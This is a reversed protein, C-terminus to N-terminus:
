ATSRLITALSQLGGGVSMSLPASLHPACSKRKGALSCAGGAAGRMLLVLVNYETAGTINRHVFTGHTTADYSYLM